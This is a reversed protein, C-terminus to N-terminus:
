LFIGTLYGLLALDCIYDRIFIDKVNVIKVCLLKAGIGVNSINVIIYRIYIFTYYLIWGSTWSVYFM